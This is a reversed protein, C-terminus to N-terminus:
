RDGEEKKVEKDKENRESEKGGGEEGQVFLVFADLMGLIDGVTWSVTTRRTRIASRIRAVM